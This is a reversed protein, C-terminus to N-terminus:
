SLLRILWSKCGEAENTTNTVIGPAGTGRGAGPARHRPLLSALAAAALRASATSKLRASTKKSLKQLRNRTWLPVKNSSFPAWLLPLTVRRPNRFWFAGTVVAGELGPWSAGASGRGRCHFGAAGM